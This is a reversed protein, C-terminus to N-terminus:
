TKLCDFIKEVSLKKIKECVAYFGKKCVFEKNHLTSKETMAIIEEQTYQNLVDILNCIKEFRSLNGQDNDWSLDFGYNFELGLQSLTKYIEFQGCAIFPVGAVLCKLTKEDIDPGPYIYAHDNETMYSYHFSGNTFHLATDIYQTQWPNSNIRQINDLKTDFGDSILLDRYKRCYIETLRDLTNNGSLEWNHVNKNELRRSNHLILSNSSATELLKTTVWVKSQTIRNCIASYKFKKFKPTERYGHWELMKEIDRHWDCYSIFETNELHYDYSNGPFLVIFKGNVKSRQQTMWALNINEIHYSIIYFDHGPPLDHPNNWNQWFSCFIKQNKPLLKVWPYIDTYEFDKPEGNWTSPCFMTSM